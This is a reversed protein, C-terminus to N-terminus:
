KAGARQYRSNSFRRGNGKSDGYKELLEEILGSAELKNLTKVGKGFREQALAEIEKKDLHHEEVIKLILGKQKDSCEWNDNGNHRQAWQRETTRSPSKM